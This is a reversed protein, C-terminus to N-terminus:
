AQICLKIIEKLSNAQISGWKGLWVREFLMQVTTCSSNRLLHLPRIDAIGTGWSPPGTAAGPIDARAGLDHAPRLGVHLAKHASPCAMPGVITGLCCDGTCVMLRVDLCFTRLDPVLCYEGAILALHEIQVGGGGRTWRYAMHPYAHPFTGM